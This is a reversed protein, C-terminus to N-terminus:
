TKSEDTKAEGGRFSKPDALLGTETKNKNTSRAAMWDFIRGAMRQFPNLEVPYFYGSEFWGQDRYWTYDRNNEDLMRRISTRSMRFKMLDFLSPGPYANEQLRSYFRRSLRAVKRNIKRQSKESVPEVSTLCIGKVVRFGLGSGIFDLYRNIKRGGYIGQYVINTFTKGFFQPRHFMFGLRDLFIKMFASVHFSYNPSAFVVGDSRRIKEILQDRDDRSPCFEEGQEFCKKCGWCVMLQYDKLAVIEYDINGYSQLHQLFQLTSQYSGKKRASGIIATVKM